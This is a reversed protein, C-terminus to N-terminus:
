CHCRVGNVRRKAAIKRTASTTLSRHDIVISRIRVFEAVLLTLPTFHCGASVRADLLAERARDVFMKGVTEMAPTRKNFVPVPQHLKEPDSLPYFPVREHSM